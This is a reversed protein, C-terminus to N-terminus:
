LISGVNPDSALKNAVAETLPLQWYNYGLTNSISAFIQSTDNVYTKLQANIANVQDTNNGDKPM